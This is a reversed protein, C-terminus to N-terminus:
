QMSNVEWDEIPALGMTPLRRSPRRSPGLRTALMVQSIRSASAQTLSTDDANTWSGSRSRHHREVSATTAMPPRHGSPDTKSSFREHNALGHLSRLGLYKACVPKRSALRTMKPGHYGGPAISVSRSPRPPWLHGTTPPTLKRRFDCTIVWATDRANSSINPM